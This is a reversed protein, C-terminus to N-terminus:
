RHHGPTPKLPPTDVIVEAPRRRGKGPMVTPMDVLIAKLTSMLVAFILGRHSGKKELQAAPRPQLSRSLWVGRNGQKSKASAM